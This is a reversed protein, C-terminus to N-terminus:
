LVEEIAKMTRAAIVDWSLEKAYATAARSRAALASPSAAAATELASALGRGDYLWGVTGPLERLGGLRPAVLPRGFSLALLASGSTSVESFPLAVVDAARYYYQMRDDAIYTDAVMLREGLRRKYGAIKKRLAEDRCTGALVLRPSATDDRGVLLKAFAQVLQEVGKYRRVHGLFLVVFAQQPLGLELRAQSRTVTDPYVGIYSGHPIVVINDATASLRKRRLQDAVAQSHAIVIQSHAALFRRAQWDNGFQREHPLVNHATWVVAFGWARLCWVFAQFYTQALWRGATTRGILPLSFPYTWHLHFARYGRLRAAAAQWPLALLGFTHSGFPARLYTVTHGAARMPGYLLEQYPNADRPYALLKM